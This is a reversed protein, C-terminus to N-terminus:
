SSKDSEAMRALVLSQNITDFDIAKLREMAKSPEKKKAEAKEDIKALDDIALYRRVEPWVKVAENMSKCERVYGTIQNEVLQWRADIEKIHSEHTLLQDFYSHDQRSVEVRASYAYTGDHRDTFTWLPLMGGPVSVSPAALVAGDEDKVTCTIARERKIVLDPHRFAPEDMEPKARKCFETDLLPGWLKLIFEEDGTLIPKEPEKFPAKEMDKLRRINRRIDSVRRDTVAVFAM